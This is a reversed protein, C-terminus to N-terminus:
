NSPPNGRGDKPDARHGVRYKVKARQLPSANKLAIDLGQASVHGIKLNRRFNAKSVM